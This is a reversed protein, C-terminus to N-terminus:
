AWKYKMYNDNTRGTGMTSIGAGEPQHRNGKRCQHQGMQGQTVQRTPIDTYQRHPMKSHRDRVVSSELNSIYVAEAIIM